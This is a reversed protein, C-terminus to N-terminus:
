QPLPKLNRAAGYSEDGMSSLETSRELKIKKNAIVRNIAAISDSTVKDCSEYLTFNIFYILYMFSKQDNDM